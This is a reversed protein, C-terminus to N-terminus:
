WSMEEMIKDMEKKDVIIDSVSVNGGVLGSVNYNIGNSMGTVGTVGYLGGSVEVSSWIEFEGEMFKMRGHYVRDLGRDSGGNIVYRYWKNMVMKAIWYDKFIIEDVEGGLIEFEMRDMGIYPNYEGGIDDVRLNGISPCREEWYWEGVGNLLRMFAIERDEGRGCFKEGGYEVGIVIEEGIRESWFKGGGLLSRIFEMYFQPELIVVEGEEGERIEWDERVNIGGLGYSMSWGVESMGSYVWGVRYTRSGELKIWYPLSRWVRIWEERMIVEWKERKKDM